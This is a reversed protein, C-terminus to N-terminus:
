QKAQHIKRNLIDDEVPLMNVSTTQLDLAAESPAQYFM